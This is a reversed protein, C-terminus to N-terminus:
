DENGDVLHPASESGQSLAVRGLLYLLSQGRGDVNERLGLAGEDRGREDKAFSGLEDGATKEHLSVM